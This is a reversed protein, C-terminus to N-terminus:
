RAVVPDGIHFRERGDVSASVDSLLTDSDSVGALRRAVAGILKHTMLLPHMRAFALLSRYRKAKSDLALTWLAVDRSCAALEARYQPVRRAVQAAVISWSRYIKLGDNSMSNPLRRYGTLPKPVVGFHHSEAVRIYFSIDECGEAGRARLGSDYGGADRAVQTRVLVASGNGVLNTRCLQRLVDGSDSKAHPDGIIFGERDIIASWTYVLGVKGCNQMVGLQEEIKTAAWLDDGDIPAVYAGRAEQIGRNRAAAVGGNPQRILRIREDQRGHRLVIESTDDSSGDDIVLIELRSYTQSRISLLTEDITSSSNYAAVVATVLDHSM